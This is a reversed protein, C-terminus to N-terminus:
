NSNSFLEVLNFQGQIHMMPVDVSKDASIKFPGDKTAAKAFKEAWNSKFYIANTLVLRTLNDLTGKPILDKIKDKTQQGVWDNITKTAEDSKAFDVDNLGAGYSKQLLQTFDPKFAYGKQGWLANAVVLEYAPKGDGKKLDQPNLSRLLEAFAPNLKDPPLTFHLTKAMQDATNGAAGAYTMALATDISSPSFFFNGKKEAALKAYLEAAFANSDNVVLASIPNKDSSVAVQAFCASGFLVMCTTLIVPKM